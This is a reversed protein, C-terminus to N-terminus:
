VNNRANIKKIFVDPDFDEVIGSNEGEILAAKLTELKVEDEELHRLAARIVESANNYRGHAIYSQIMNEYYAGLSVTVTRAM